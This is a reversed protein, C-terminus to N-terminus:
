MDSEAIVKVMDAKTANEVTTLGHKTWEPLHKDRFEDASIESSAADHHEIERVKRILLM